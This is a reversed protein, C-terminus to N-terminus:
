PNSGELTVEIKCRAAVSERSLADVGMAVVGLVIPPLTDLSVSGEGGLIGRGRTEPWSPTDVVLPTASACM